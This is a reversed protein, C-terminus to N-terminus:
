LLELERKINEKAQNEFDRKYYDTFYLSEKELFHELVKRRGRNYLFDPYIKYEKRIQETYTKYTEWESGLISLDFDLLYANDLNEMLEIQHKKTSIVLTKIKQIVENDIKFKKLRWEAFEASKEENDKRTPKYIVDHYWIAFRLANFDNIENEFQKAQLLLNEVHILNHYHRAKVSYHSEIEKWCNQIFNEDSSYESALTFWEEKLDLNM